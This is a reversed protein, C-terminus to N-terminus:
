ESDDVDVALWRPHSQPQQLDRKPRMEDQIQYPSFPCDGANCPTTKLNKLVPTMRRTCIVDAYCRYTRLRLHTKVLSRNTHNRSIVARLYHRLEIEERTKTGDYRPRAPEKGQCRFVHDLM